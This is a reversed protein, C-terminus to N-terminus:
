CQVYSRHSAKRQLFVGNNNVFKESICLTKYARTLGIRVSNLLDKLTPIATSLVYAMEANKRTSVQLEKANTELEQELLNWVETIAAVERSYLM